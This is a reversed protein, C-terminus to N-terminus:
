QAVRTWTLNKKIFGISASIALSEASPTITGNLTKGMAISYISGKWVGDSESFNKLVETGPVAKPNDSSLVRGTAVGNVESVEVVTNDEGTAWKGTLAGPVAYSDTVGLMAVLALSMFAAKTVFLRIKM